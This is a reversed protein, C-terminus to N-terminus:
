HTIHWFFRKVTYVPGHEKLCRVGGRVKRPFWTIARGTRFSVSKKLSDERSLSTRLKKDADKSKKKIDVLKKETDNLKKITAKRENTSTKIGEQYFRCLYEYLIKENPNHDSQAAERGINEFLDKWEAGIDVSELYESQTRGAAGIERGREPTRLLSIVEQALLDYRKQEVTIIGRGDQVFTLWPLNYSVVPIGYSMAEGYTLSFGENSSTEVFVAAKKYYQAVDTTFGTFVINNELHLNVTLDRLDANLKEDGDGVIYLKADPVERVIYEMMRILDLPQKEHAIRGCWLLMNEERSSLPTDKVSFTLKNPICKTNSCFVSTYRKDCESLVVAGDCLRYQMAISFAADSRYSFPLCCFSHSHIIFAPRLKHGKVCLMDWFCCRSLWMGYVVVDISHESLIREWAEARLRYKEKASQSHYPLFDREVGYDLPYEGEEPAGDTILIVRYLTEGDADKMRNLINCLQATVRQAGGNKISRYHLAITLKKDDPRKVHNFYTVGQLEEALDGRNYWDSEAISCIVDTIGWTDALRQFGASKDEKRLNKLWKNVCENLLGRYIRRLADNYDDTVGQAVIFQEIAKYVDHSTCQVEFKQLSLTDSGTVGIGFNYNYLVDEIGVYSKAFYAVIFFAYLDQAKPFYGDEVYSFARRCLDGDYIKNWLQFGFKRENWCVRILDVGDLLGPYPKVLRQNSAIRSEAVGGVNIIQTGFQVIDTSSQCIANFAIKCATPVLFDDSDVFMVYRGHSALVGDKRAQSTGLNSSHFIAVVRVDKDVYERLIEASGDESFDDICIIEIDQLTQNILSDLCTRLYKATNCIPIIISVKPTLM